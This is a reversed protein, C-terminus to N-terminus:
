FFSKWWVSDFYFWLQILPVKIERGLAWGTNGFVTSPPCRRVSPAQAFGSIHQIACVCVCLASASVFLRLRESRCRSRAFPCFHKNFCSPSHTRASLAARLPWHMWVSPWASVSLHHHVHSKLLRPVGPLEGLPAACEASFVFQCLVVCPSVVLHCNALNSLSTKFFISVPIFNLYFM